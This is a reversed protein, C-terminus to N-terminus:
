GLSISGAKMIGATVLGEGVMAGASQAPHLILMKAGNHFDEKAQEEDFVINYTMKVPETVIQWPHTALHQAGDKVGGAFETPGVATIRDSKRQLDDATGMGRADLWRAAWVLEGDSMGSFDVRGSADMRGHCMMCSPTVLLALQTMEVVRPGAGQNPPLSE